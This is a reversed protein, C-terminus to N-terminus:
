EGEVQEGVLSETVIDFNQDYGTKIVVGQSHLYELVVDAMALASHWGEEDYAVREIQALEERIEKQKTM